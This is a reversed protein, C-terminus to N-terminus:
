WGQKMIESRKKQYEEETILSDKKLSELKRLKQEFDNKTDKSQSTILSNDIDIDETSIGKPSSINAISFIIGILVMVIMAIPFFVGGPFDSSSFSPIFIFILILIAFIGGIIGGVSTAKSPKIRARM